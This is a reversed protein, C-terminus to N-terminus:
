KLDFSINNINKEKTTRYKNQDFPRWYELINTAADDSEMNITIFIMASLWVPNIKPPM